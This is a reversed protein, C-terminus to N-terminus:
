VAEDEEGLMDELRKLIESQSGVILNNNVTKPGTNKMLDTTLKDKHAKLTSKSRAAELATNLFQVAVEGARAKFKGEVLEAEQFQSEFAGMAADYIENFQGEVEVDKEDYQEAVKFETNRVIQPMMTTGEEIDFVDELPHLVPVEIETRKIENPM